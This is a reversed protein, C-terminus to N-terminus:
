VKDLEEMLAKRQPYEQRLFAIIEILKERAGLKKIKRLYRCANKYYKRGVYVKLYDFIGRAYLKIIEEKFDKILFKEYEEITRLDPSQKILDLLKDWWKERIYISAILQSDLWYGKKAIDHITKELFSKWNEISVQEKLVMYYDQENRFNDILLYRAYEIIKEKNDQAQAIKLLWNYWESVLGPKDKSDFHVGDLAISNAKDYEKKELALQIIKRRLEPNAINQELYNAAADEGRTKMLIEYKLTQAVERDYESRQAKNIFKLIRESENETKVLLSAIQLMGIHWDWGEFNKKDFAALCYDLIMKRFEEDPQESAIRYLMDYASYVCDGIDGNSDDSYDLAETMQELVATCIFIASKYNHKVIHNQASELFNNVESGVHRAASWDIFGQRRSASHLISKLQKTYFERSEGSSHQAFESLFSNRFKSNQIVAERIFKKLEEPDAKGLIEDVSSKRTKHVGTKRSRKIKSSKSPRNLELKDQQLHFIVAAIHKCVPGLDYPCDCKYETIINDKIMLKVTYDESGEVVAEYEGPNIEEPEHVHGNKFYSLGRKLITENIYIEFQDLPIQM